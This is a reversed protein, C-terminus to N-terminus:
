HSVVDRQESLSKPWKMMISNLSNGNRDSLSSNSVIRLPTTSSEPKVVHQLSTYHVPGRWANMCEESLEVLAGHQVMKDFEANFADLLGEKVLKKEERMAIKSVLTFNNTLVSPDELFPYEVRYVKDIEDYTVNKKMIEYEYQERLSM